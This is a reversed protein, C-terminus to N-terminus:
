VHARGIQKGTVIYDLIFPQCSNTLNAPDHPDFDGTSQKKKGTFVKHQPMCGLMYESFPNDSPTPVLIMNGLRANDISRLRFSNNTLFQVLKNYTLESNNKIYHKFQNALTIMGDLAFELSALEKHVMSSRDTTQVIESRNAIIYNLLEFMDSVYISQKAFNKISEEELYDNNISDFHERMLRMIYEVTDGPKVSCRGIILKWYDPDDIQDLDFYSSLCTVVFLLAAVYQMGIVSLEKRNADKNRVAVAIDHPIFEGLFKNNLSGTRTYIEWRDSAKCKNTIFDVGGIEYECDSYLKMAKDFGLNGFVYWALLPFPTKKSTIARSDTPSYFRNAALNINSTSYPVNPLETHVRDFRFFESGIKTKLSLLKLFIAKEKTVSLGREALVIQLSYQSDRIFTDGYKDCYLLMAHIPPLPKKAGTKPDQWSFNITIPFYSEKHTGYVCPQRNLLYSIFEKPKVRRINEFIVGKAAVSQFIIRYQNQLWRESGEFEKLHFGDVIDKNFRPMTEDVIKVMRPDM